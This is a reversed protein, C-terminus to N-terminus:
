RNVGIWTAEVKVDGEARVSGLWDIGDLTFESVSDNMPFTLKLDTSYFYGSQQEDWPTASWLADKLEVTASANCGSYQQGSDRGDAQTFSLYAPIPVQLSNDSSKFLCYSKGAKTTSEGVVSAKVTDAKKPASQTVVYDFTIAEEERGIKGTKVQDNMNKHRISIGYERPIIEIDMNTAFQYFGSQPLDSNRIAFTFIGKQGSTSAGAALMNRFFRNTFLVRVYGNGSTIMSSMRNSASDTYNVWTGSGAEMKIDNNGLTMNNLAATDIVMYLRTSTNFATVLGEMNYRVMNCAIGENRDGSGIVIYECEDNVNTLSPTGDTAVWIESFARNDFLKLHGTKTNITQGRSWTGTSMDKCRQGKSPDYDERTECNNVIYTMQTGVSMKELYEYMGTNFSIRKNRTPTPSMKYAGHKDVYEAPAYSTSPCGTTTIQCRIGIFPFQIDPSEIWVDVNYNSSFSGSDVQMYGLSRHNVRGYKAWVNAGTFRPNLDDSSIFYEGDVENEIFVFENTGNSTIRTPPDLAFAAHNLSLGIMSGLLSLKFKNM